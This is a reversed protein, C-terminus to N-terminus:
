REHGSVFSRIRESIGHIDHRISYRDADAEDRLRRIATLIDELVRLAAESSHLRQDEMLTNAIHTLFLIDREYGFVRVCDEAYMPTDFWEMGRKYRLKEIRRFVDDKSLDCDPNDLYDLYFPITNDRWDDNMM